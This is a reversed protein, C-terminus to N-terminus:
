EASEKPVLKKVVHQDQGEGELFFMTSSEEIQKEKTKPEFSVNKYIKENFDIPVVDYGSAEVVYVPTFKLQGNLVAIFMNLKENETLPTGASKRARDVDAFPYWTDQLSFGRAVLSEYNRNILNVIIYLNKFSGIIQFDHVNENTKLTRNTVVNNGFMNWFYNVKDGMKVRDEYSSESSAIIESYLHNMEEMLGKYSLFDDESLLEYSATNRALNCSADFLHEIAGDIVGDACVKQTECCKKYFKELLPQVSCSCNGITQKYSDDMREISMSNM